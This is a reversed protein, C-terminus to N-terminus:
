YDAGSHNTVLSYQLPMTRTFVTVHDHYRMAITLNANKLESCPHGCCVQGVIYDDRSYIAFSNEGEYRAMAQNIDMMYESTCVMGDVDNCAPLNKPCWEMGYAVGGVSVFTDIYETLPEGLFEGTDVCHGGLISKRSIAVGMSYAIIDVTKETYNHVAIIFERIQKVSECELENMYFPTYGGDAYTTAYLESTSYGKGLFYNRHSVFVGARLTVGHVFIVPENRITDNDGEKGGFSGYLYGGMDMRDLQGVLYKDRGGGYSKNLFEKFHRTLEGFVYFLPLLNIFLIFSIKVM